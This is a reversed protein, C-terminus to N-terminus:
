SSYLCLSEGDNRQGDLQRSIPLSVLYCRCTVMQPFMRLRQVCTDLSRYCFHGHKVVQRGGATMGFRSALTGMIVSPLM